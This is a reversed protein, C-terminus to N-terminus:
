ATTGGHAKAIAARLAAELAQVRDIYRINDALNEILSLTDMATSRLEPAAAILHADEELFGGNSDLRRYHVGPKSTDPWLIV